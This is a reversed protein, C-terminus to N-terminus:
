KGNNGIGNEKKELEMKWHKWNWKGINVIGNKFTLLEM